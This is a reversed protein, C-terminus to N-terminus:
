DDGSTTVSTIKHSTDSSSGLHIGVAAGGNDENYWNDFNHMADAAFAAAVTTGGCTAFNGKTIGVTGTLLEWVPQANVGGTVGNWLINDLILLRESLTTIGRICATAYDGMIVNDAITVDFTKGTLKIACDAAAAGVDFRCNRITTGTVPNLNIGILFEDNTKDEPAAFICNIFQTYDAGAEVDVAKTIVSTSPVFRINVFIINDAGVAFEGDQDIYTFTPMATSNYAGMGIVTVGIVDADVGQDDLDEAYYEAVKVFDGRSAGGDAAILAFIEDLTAVADTWSTGSGSASVASDVYWISGTGVGGALEAQGEIGQAWLTARDKPVHGGWAYGNRFTTRANAARPYGFSVATCVLVLCVIIILFKKM